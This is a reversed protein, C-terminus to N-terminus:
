KKMIYDFTLSSERFYKVNSHHLEIYQSDSEVKIKSLKFQHILKMLIKHHEFFRAGGIEYQPSKNTILRGGMYSREDILLIKSQGYKQRLKQTAYLGTIGGGVVIFDYMNM